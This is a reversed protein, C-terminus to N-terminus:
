LISHGYRLSEFAEFSACAKVATESEAMICDSVGAGGGADGGGEVGGVDGAAVIAARVVSVDYM